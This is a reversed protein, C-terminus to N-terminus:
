FSYRLTLQINRESSKETVKGFTASRPNTDVGNWNPLNIWNFAEFRLQLAHGERILFNKFLGLNWNQFGPSYILGRNLQNTFTGRAPETFIPTSGNRPQFWFNPDNRAPSFQKTYVIDSNRNWIQSGSGTGVGAFDDGTAVTGPTGSQFQTVGTIQWGGLLKGLLETNGRLIPLEYMFNIVAVHRTDFTSPGWLNNADFANPIVDRQASGNDSSKSYTYAFGYAFGRTFRRNIGLQFGNYRSNAENNTIRIAGFGAYPRLFDVNIGPNAFTTGPTLQNINRERQAHLGHRGVYSVELTTSFALEREYTVNWIWSEPNKFIKDQTNVSLPFNSSGGASGGPNDVSGTSLSALPQLPANGGLFISDSVGLRTTYRGVGSRIVSKPALSYALGLRPQFLLKHINSYQKPEGRFLFNYEGSDAIPVRGKASDPWGEGPILVGNFRRALENTLVLGNAPNVPARLSSQFYAPDFLSMNGWLSYYPQIISHRLGLELRLKSTVRWGDQVFWEFMHGRYPTYSRIGIEAYTDYLGLASNALALGSTPAGARTDSFVFRGNQNNTGGPVGSVNIQDFDNQGSREFLVGFKLTHNGQIKTFNNSFVYIPGASSAPYPGGSLESVNAITITPIRNGIEKGAPFLYPYNIGYQTRDFRGSSTDVGIKVRDVSGTVLTENVMTPSITWIYNLSATQNPRKFTRPVRDFNGDFPSYDDFNYNQFRFRFQHKDAPNFDISVTDKRQNQPAGAAALWNSNGVVFGPTPTPYARLLAVGNPSLRNQPIINGAFPQGNLPDRIARPANFFLNTGLLESFDGQRMGNSPVTRTVTTDRRYKIWEQGWLFFLKNKNTNWKGPIYVPGNVNYGYQNYRFPAVFNTTASQNRTWSNADLASNRFYEYFDGHFRQTGSKTVIRIQGGAARGYEASYNATLIQIESVTDVDAVGISTGNSRTRIAVAGDFTILNDQSRSGNISFGGSTLGFSFGALSGGRVGPKLLALMVPNRGNLQMNRIQANDILKGLTASESQIAAASAVVEVTEAVAGVELTVSIQSAVNPDLKNQTRVSKKFGTAEVTVTYFGPPISAAVYYGSENTTFKRELGTAESKITVNANAVVAGSADKVVGSIQATDSQAFALSGSLILVAALLAALMRAQKM